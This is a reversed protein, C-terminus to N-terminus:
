IEAPGGGPDLEAEAQVDSLRLNQKWYAFLGILTLPLYNFLHNVLAFGMAQEAPVDFLSLGLVVVGHYTGVAGPTSPVTIAITGVALIVLSAMIPSQEVKPYEPSVFDFTYFMCYVCGLYFGWLIISSVIIVFYHETRRFVDLGKTFQRTIHEIRDVIGHGLFGFLRRGFVVLQETKLIMVVLVGILVITGVFTILSSQRIWHPFPFLLLIIGLILLLCMIDFLREVVITAFASSRSVGGGRGLSYARFIEGMRLPLINNVMYGIMMASFALGFRVAGVPLLFLKWRYARVYFSILFMVIAPLLYIYKAEKLVLALESIQIRPTGVLSEMLGVDGRLLGGVDPKWFALYLFFLGVAFGLWVRPSFFRKM